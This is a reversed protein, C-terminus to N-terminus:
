ETSVYNMLERSFKSVTWVLVHGVQQLVVKYGILYDESTGVVIEINREMAMASGWMHKECLRVRFFKGKCRAFFILLLFDSM